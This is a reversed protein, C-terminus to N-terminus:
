VSLRFHVCFRRIHVHLLSPFCTDDVNYKFGKRYKNLNKVYMIKEITMRHWLRYKIIKKIFEAEYRIKYRM